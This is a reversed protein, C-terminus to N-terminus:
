NRPEHIERGILTNAAIVSFRISKKHKQPKDDRLYASEVHIRVDCDESSKARWSRFYVVYDLAQGQDNLVEVTFFNSHGTHFCRRIELSQLISPLELSWRYRESDFVRKERGDSVVDSLVAEEPRIARSFCHLGFTIALSIRREPARGNAAIILERKFANLHNLPHPIGHWIVPMWNLVVIPKAKRILELVLTAVLTSDLSNASAHCHDTRDQGRASLPLRRHRAVM